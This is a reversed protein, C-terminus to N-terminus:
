ARIVRSIVDVMSSARISALPRMLWARDGGCRRLLDCSGRGAEEVDVKSTADVVSAALMSAFAYCSGTEEADVRSTADVVSIRKQMSALPRM